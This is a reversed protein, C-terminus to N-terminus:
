MCLKFKLGPAAKHTFKGYWVQSKVDTFSGQGELRYCFFCCCAVNSFTQLFKLTITGFHEHFRFISDWSMKAGPQGSLIYHAFKCMYRSNGLKWMKFGSVLKLFFDACFELPILLMTLYRSKWEVFNASHNTSEQDCAGSLIWIYSGVLIYNCLQQGCALYLPMNKGYSQKFSIYCLVWHITALSVLKNQKGSLGSIKQSERSFFFWGNRESGYMLHIINTSKHKRLAGGVVHTLQKM